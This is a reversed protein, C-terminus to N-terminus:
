EDSRRRSRSSSWTKTLRLSRRKPLRYLANEGLAQRGNSTEHCEKGGIYSMHVKGYGYILITYGYWMDLDYIGIRIDMGYIMNMDM